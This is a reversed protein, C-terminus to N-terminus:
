MNYMLYQSGWWFAVLRGIEEGRKSRWCFVSSLIHDHKIKAIYLFGEIEDSNNIQKQM